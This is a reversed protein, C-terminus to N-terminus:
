GRPTNHPCRKLNSPQSVAHIKCCNNYTLLLFSLSFLLDIMWHALSLYARSMFANGLKGCQKKQFIFTRGPVLEVVAKRLPLFLYLKFNSSCFM